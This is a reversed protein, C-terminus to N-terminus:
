SRSMLALCEVHETQPMMDFGRLQRTAYGHEAFRDLDRALTMPNCSVYVVRQPASAVVAGLVAEDLGKRPPNLTVIGPSIAEALGPLLQAVDGANFRTNHFGNLRANIKADVVAIPSLELGFVTHAAGALHFALAGAGCYLDFAVTDVSPAAWELAQRYIKGAVNPNAQLFAGARTRLRLGGIKEIISDEKTLSIFDGGFIANGPDANVNLVVSAVGRGRALARAFGVPLARGTAVLIVQATRNWLSARVVVYRLLGTRAVEDYVSVDFREVMAAIHRLVDNIPPAHVPCARIDVVDHTGPKYIGLLVGHVGARAVLKAQNRYGFARPSGVIEPVEVGALRPYAALSAAVIERKRRLQEGYAVGVFPCGVCNPYHACPQQPRVLPPSM